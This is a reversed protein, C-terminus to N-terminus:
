AVVLVRPRCKMAAHKTLSPAVQWLQHARAAVCHNDHRLVYATETFLKHLRHVHMVEEMCSRIAAHLRVQLSGTFHRNCAIFRGNCAFRVSVVEVPSRGLIDALQDKELVTVTDFHKSLVKAAALGGMGSGIVVAQGQGANTTACTRVTSNTSIRLSRAIRKCKVTRAPVVSHIGRHRLSPHTIM